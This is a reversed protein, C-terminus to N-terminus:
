PLPALTVAGHGEARITMLHHYILAMGILPTGELCHIVVKREQGGWLVIGEYLDVFIMRGDALTVQDASVLPLGLAQILRYPLSFAESFGTDILANVTVSTGATGRVALTLIARQGPQVVGTLM